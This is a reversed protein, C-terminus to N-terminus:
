YEWTLGVDPVLRVYTSEPDDVHGFINIFETHDAAGFYKTELAQYVRARLPSDRVAEARGRISAGKYHSRVGGDVVWGVRPNRQMAKWKASTTGIGIYYAGELLVFWVPVVRPYGQRDLFALRLLEAEECFAQLTASLEPM